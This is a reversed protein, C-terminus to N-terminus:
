SNLLKHMRPLMSQTKEQYNEMDNLIKDLLRIATNIHPGKNLMVCEARISTTADTIESRSPLGKKALNELVQTAWVVPVHAAGSLGLIENQVWGINDWGTEVALDGRAIMVGIYHVQMAALLIEDLNDFARQTEIKLIISLKNRGGLADIAEILEEVDEKSNVFSFNVVDAHAVVFELDEKDKATLGSVGVDAV